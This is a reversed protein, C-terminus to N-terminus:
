HLVEKLVEGFAGSPADVGLMAALTPAVQNVTVRETYVGAKVGAGYFIVPVHSDFNYPTGHTTGKGAAFIYYPEPIVFVDGSRPGYYGNRVARGVPETGDEGREEEDRTYVRAIHPFAAAAEAAVRRAERADVGRRALEADNLYIAAGGPVLWQGEGFRATLAARVAAMLQGADLRGGPMKRAQNVEPVPAVGHDATLVVLARGAGLRADLFSLLKGITRDTRIAMDRVRTSDPGFAHGVYDNSSFSITLIDTGEHTGLREAEIAKEAFTEVIENGFPTADISGCAKSKDAAAFTCFPEGGEQGLPRWAQERYKEVPGAENMKTVWEPLERGYYTSSVFHGTGDDFWYAGDAMHGSPLIASRDKISVGIEKVTRGAMKMEDGVTSVLLRRPSSGKAGEKGGLLETGEDSVSTVVRGSTRDYWENGVIGSVSPTAGSLFTSHGVATVTPFHVYYANSYVAGRELLKVFGDRYESRFRTLYDFRFQDIVIAVLLKPRAGEARGRGAKVTGAKDAGAGTKVPGVGSQAANAIGAGAGALVIIMAAVAAM